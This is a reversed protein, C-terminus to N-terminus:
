KTRSCSNARHSRLLIVTEFESGCKTCAHNKFQPHLQRHTVLERVSNFTEQCLSCQKKRDELSSCESQEHGKHRIHGLLDSFKLECFPCIGSLHQPVYKKRKGVSPCGFGDMSGM